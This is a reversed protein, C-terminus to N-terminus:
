CQPLDEPFTIKRNAAEGPVAAVKTDPWAFAWVEADDTFEAGSKAAKEHAELLPGFAFGQPTQAFVVTERRPHRTIFGYGPVQGDGAAAGAGDFPGGLVKPTEISPLVPVAARHIVAAGIVADIVARSVWPRAGDHILVFDYRCGSARLSRLANLVSVRRNEGGRVFLVRSCLTSPLVARAEDEADERDPPVTVVIQGIAPVAAFASVAAGLVTLPKGDADACGPLVRYEKKVAKVASLPRGEAMRASSGAATVVAAIRSGGM